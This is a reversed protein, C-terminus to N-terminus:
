GIIEDSFISCVQHTELFTEIVDLADHLEDMTSAQLKLKLLTLPHKSREEMTILQNLANESLRKLLEVLSFLASVCDQSDTAFKSALQASM